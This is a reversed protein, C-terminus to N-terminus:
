RGENAWQVRKEEIEYPEDGDLYGSIHEGVYSIPRPDKQRCPDLQRLRHRIASSRAM